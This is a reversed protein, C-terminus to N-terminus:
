TELSLAEGIELLILRFEYGNYHLLHDTGVLVDPIVDVSGDEQQQGRLLDLTFRQSLPHVLKDGVQNFRLCFICARLL